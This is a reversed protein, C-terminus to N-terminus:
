SRTELSADLRDIRKIRQTLDMSRMLTMVGSKNKLANTIQSNIAAYWGGDIKEPYVYPDALLRFGLHRVPRHAVIGSQNSFL